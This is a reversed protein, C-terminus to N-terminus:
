RVHRLDKVGRVQLDRQRSGSYRVHAEFLDDVRRTSVGEVYAEAVVAHLAQDIRRRKVLFSPFYSGKRLKPIALDIDGSKTTLTKM